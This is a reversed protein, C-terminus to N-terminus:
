APISLDLRWELGAPPQWDTAPPEALVLVPKMGEGPPDDGEDWRVHAELVPVGLVLSDRMLAVVAGIAPRNPPLIAPGGPLEASGERALVARDSRHPILFHIGLRTDTM